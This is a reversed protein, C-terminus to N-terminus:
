MTTSRQGLERLHNLVHGKFLLGAHDNAVAIRM